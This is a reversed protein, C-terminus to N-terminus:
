EVVALVQGANVTDGVKANLSVVVGDLPTKMENQMKMAEVVLLGTGAKVHAGVEVLMRVVKGPMPATIEASGHHHDGSNESSRLRKPDIIRVEHSRGRLNVALHGLSKDLRSVRCEYVRTGSKLLIVEPAPRLVSVHYSRDNIRVEALEADRKLELEHNDNSIQAKLKV